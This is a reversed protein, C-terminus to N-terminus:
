LAIDRNSALIHLCCSIVIKKKQSYLGIVRTTIIFYIESKIDRVVFIVNYVHYIVFISVYIKGVIYTLPFILFIFLSIDYNHWM